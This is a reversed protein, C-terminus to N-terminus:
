VNLDQKIKLLIKSAAISKGLSTWQELKHLIRGRERQNGQEFLRFILMGVVPYLQRNEEVLDLWNKITDLMAERADKENLVRQILCTIIDEYLAVQETNTDEKSRRTEEIILWLLTPLEKQYSDTSTKSECIFFVFVFLGFIRTLKKNEADKPPDFNNQSKDNDGVGLIKSFLTLGNKTQPNATWVQLTELVAFYQGAWFLTDVALAATNFFLWSLEESKQNDESEEEFTAIELLKRLAIDPFFKGYAWYAYIATWSLYRNDLTRWYNLLGLVQPALNGESVPSILSRAVLARVYQQDSKGWPLLVKECVFSFAYKSLEGVAYAVRVRVDWNDHFGLKYLWELLPERLRDYEQWMYSLVAFQWKDNDFEIREVPSNGFETEESSQVLKAGVAKVLQSRPTNFLPESKSIDEKEKDKEPPPNIVSELDQSAKLVNQYAGGNLVALAIIFVRQTLNQHEGFWSEVKEQVHVDFSALAQELDLENITVKALLQALKDIDGPLLKHTLLERVSDEQIPDYNSNLQVQDKLYWELHKELLAESTPLHHFKVIYESLDDQSLRMLSDVTIILYSDQKKLQQSLGNLTYSNLKGSRDSALYRQNTESPFSSFDQLSPDIVFIEETQLVSLLLHIATTRKGFKSDGWLILIHKEKLIRQAQAYSDPQIYVSSIKTIQENSIQGAVYNLFNHKTSGTNWKTQNVGVVDGVVDVQDAFYAGGSRNDTINFINVGGLNDSIDKGLFNKFFNNKSSHRHHEENKPSQNQKENSPKPDRDHQDQDPSKIEPNDSM